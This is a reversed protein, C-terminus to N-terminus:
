MFNDRYTREAAALVDSTPHTVLCCRVGPHKCAIGKTQQHDNRVLTDSLFSQVSALALCPGLLILALHLAYYRMSYIAVDVNGHVFFYEM